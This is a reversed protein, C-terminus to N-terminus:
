ADDSIVEDWRLVSTDVLAITGDVCSFVGSVACLLILTTRNPCGTIRQLRAVHYSVTAVSIHLLQACQKYDRGQALSLIVRLQEATLM